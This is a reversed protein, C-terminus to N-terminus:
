SHLALNEENTSSLSSFDHECFTMQAWAMSKDNKLDNASFICRASRNDYSKSGSPCVPSYVTQKRTKNPAKASIYSAKIHLFWVVVTQILTASNKLTHDFACIGFSELLCEEPVNEGYFAHMLVFVAETPIVASQAFGGERGWQRGSFANLFGCIQGWIFADWIILTISSADAEFTATIM